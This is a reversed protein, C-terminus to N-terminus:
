ISLIFKLHRKTKIFESNKFDSEGVGVYGEDIRIVNNLGDYYVIDRERKIKIFLMIILEIIVILSCIIVINRILKKRKEM